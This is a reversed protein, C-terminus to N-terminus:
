KMIEVDTVTETPSFDWISLRDSGLGTGHREILEKIVEAELNGAVAIQYEVTAHIVKDVM